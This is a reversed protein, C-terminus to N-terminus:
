GRRGIQNADIRVEGDHPRPGSGWCHGYVLELDLEIGSDEGTAQLAQTMAAFRGKGTLSSEREALCNRAGSGTLDRFLSASNEYKVKLRDVDLVPDSLGARVAADGINHMDAFHHVHADQDVALWARQLESFSDPGLSAFIFLGNKRLVRNVEDFVSPVDDVWPLLQNCFVVDVSQEALPIDAASGEIFVSRAFWSKKKKAEHLMAPSHDIGIVQAGRFRKALMKCATGTACGLDVITKADLLMPELRALLGDRTVAHVFDFEDFAAAAHDFRRRVDQARLPM